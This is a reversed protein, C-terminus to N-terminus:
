LCLDKLKTPYVSPDEDDPVQQLTLKMWYEINWNAEPFFIGVDIATGAWAWYQLLKGQSKLNRILTGRGREELIKPTPERWDWTIGHVVTGDIERRIPLAPGFEWTRRTLEWFENSLMRITYAEGMGVKMYGDDYEIIVRLDM